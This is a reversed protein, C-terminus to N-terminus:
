FKLPPFPKHKKAQNKLKALNKLNHNYNRIFASPFCKAMEHNYQKHFNSSDIIENDFQQYFDLIELALNYIFGDDSVYPCNMLCSAVLMTMDFSRNSCTHVTNCDDCTSDYMETIPFQFAATAPRDWSFCSEGFDFIEITETRPDFRINGTHLDRHSFSFRRQLEELCVATQYLARELKKEPLRSMRQGQLPSMVLIPCKTVGNSDVYDMDPYQLSLTAHGYGYIKPTKINAETHQLLAHVIVGMVAEYMARLQVDDSSQSTGTDTNFMKVAVDQTQFRARTFVLANAGVDAGEDTVSLPGVHQVVATQLFEKIKGRDGHVITACLGSRYQKSWGFVSEFPLSMLFDMYNNYRPFGQGSNVRRRKPSVCRRQPSTRNVLRSM